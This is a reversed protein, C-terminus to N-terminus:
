LGVLRWDPNTGLWDQNYWDELGLIPVPAHWAQSTGIGAQYWDQNYWDELGLIPVADPWIFPNQRCMPCTFNLTVWRGFCSFHFLHLCDTAFDDTEIAELCIPCIEKQLNRLETTQTRTEYNM